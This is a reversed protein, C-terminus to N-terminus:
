RKGPKAGTLKAEAAAADAKAAFDLALARMLKRQLPDAAQDAQEECLRAQERFYREDAV